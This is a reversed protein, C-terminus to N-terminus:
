PMACVFTCEARVLLRPQVELLAQLVPRGHGVQDVTKASIAQSSSSAVTFTIFVIGNLLSVGAVIAAPNLFNVPGTRAPPAPSRRRCPEVPRAPPRRSGSGTRCSCPCPCTSAPRRSASAARSALYPSQLRRARSGGPGGSRSVSASATVDDEERREPEAGSRQDRADREADDQDIAAGADDVDGDARDRHDAGVDEPRELGAVEAEVSDVVGANTRVITHM